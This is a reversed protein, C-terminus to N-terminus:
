QTTFGPTETENDLGQIDSTETFLKKGILLARLLTVNKPLSM